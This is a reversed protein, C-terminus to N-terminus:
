LGWFGFDVPSRQGHPKGLLFSPAPQQKRRWTIKRVWPNFGHRRCRCISEKGSFWWPLGIFYTARRLIVSCWGTWQPRSCLLLCSSAPIRKREKGSENSINDRVRPSLNLGDAGKTRLGKSESQIVGSTEQPELKCGLIWKSSNVRCNHIILLGLLQWKCAPAGLFGTTYSLVYLIYVHIYQQKQKESFWSSLQFSSGPNPNFAQCFPIILSRQKSQRGPCKKQLNPKFM